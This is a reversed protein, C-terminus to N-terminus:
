SSFQVPKCIPQLIHFPLFCRVSLFSFDFDYLFHSPVIRLMWQAIGLRDEIRAADDNCSNQQSSFVASNEDDNSVWSQSCLCSKKKENKLAAATKQSLTM